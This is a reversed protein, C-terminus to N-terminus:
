ASCGGADVVPSPFETKCQLGDLFDRPIRRPAHHIRHLTSHYSNFLIQVWTAPHWTLIENMANGFDIVQESVPINEKM